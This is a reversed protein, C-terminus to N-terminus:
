AAGGRDLLELLNGEPDAVFAMRVGPEPSPGPPMVARAGLGLLREFCSDLDHVDFAMHGFGETLAAAAPDLPRVPAASGGRHLLELRDGFAPHILMVLDLDIAEVRGSFEQRYGFARCYWNTAADLDAVNLGVHDM